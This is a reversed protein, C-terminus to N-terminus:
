ELLLVVGNETFDNWYRDTFHWFINSYGGRANFPTSASWENVTTVGVAEEDFITGIVNSQEVASTAKVISGTDDLYSPTVSIDLPAMISQWYGVREYDAIRLFDNHFTQSLVTADIQNMFKSSLYIKQRNLPTHRMITKDSPNTINIHYLASRESMMDSINKIRAFMWRTFPVFNDSQMVTESTLNLGSVTNYETVLKIVNPTDGAIKGGIFNALTARATSEHAQEIMDSSNTMIMSIFSSFEDPGSFACDLQDRYITLSKQYTNAGYFNTQLVDPKNVKYQDVAQGDTLLYRDDDEFPKDVTQLKRVHNGYRESNVMLGSFKRSYPRISFITKSLVQSIATMLPDYGSLLALQAVSVFDATTVPEIATKGTAQKTIAGLVTSLQNFSLTNPM